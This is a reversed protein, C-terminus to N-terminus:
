TQHNSKMIGLSVETPTLFITTSTDERPPSALQEWRLTQFHEQLSHIRQFFQMNGNRVQFTLLTAKFYYQAQFINFPFYLQIIGFIKTLFKCRRNPNLLGGNILPNIAQCVDRFATCFPTSLEEAEHDPAGSTVIVKWDTSFYTTFHYSTIYYVFLQHFYNTSNKFRLFNYFVKTTILSRM